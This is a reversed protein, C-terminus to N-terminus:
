PRHNARARTRWDSPTFHLTDQRQTGVKGSLDAYTPACVGNPLPTLTITRVLTDGNGSHYVFYFVTAAGRAVASDAGSVQPDRAVVANCPNDAQRACGGVLSLALWAGAARLRRVHVASAASM